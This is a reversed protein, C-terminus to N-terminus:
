LHLFDLRALHRRLLVRDGHDGIRRSVVKISDAFVGTVTTSDARCRRVIRTILTHVRKGM